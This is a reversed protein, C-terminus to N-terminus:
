QGLEYRIHHCLSDTAGCRGVQKQLFCQPVRSTTAASNTHRTVAIEVHSTQPSSPEFNTGGQSVTNCQAGVCCDAQCCMWQLAAVSTKRNSPIIGSHSDVCGPSTHRRLYTPLVPSQKATEIPQHKFILMRAPAFQTLVRM